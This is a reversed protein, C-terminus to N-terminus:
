DNDNEGFATNFAETRLDKMEEVWQAYDMTKIKMSFPSGYTDYKLMLQPFRENIKGPLEVFENVPFFEPTEYMAELRSVLKIMEEVDEEILDPRIKRVAEITEKIKYLGALEPDEIEGNDYMVFIRIVMEMTESIVKLHEDSTMRSFYNGFVIVQLTRSSQHLSKQIGKIIVEM